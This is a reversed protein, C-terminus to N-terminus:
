DVNKEGQKIESVNAGGLDFEDQRLDHNFAQVKGDKKFFFVSSHAPVIPAFNTKTKIQINANSRDISPHFTVELKISRVKEPDTNPDRINAILSDLEKNFLETAAGNAINQLNLKSYESEM